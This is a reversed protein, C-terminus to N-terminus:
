RYVFGVGKNLYELYKEKDFSYLYPAKHAGGDLQKEHRIFIGLKLMKKQFNGRDLEKQLISEYLKQLDKMTFKDPLLSILVPLYNIQIRIHDLAKRVIEEHDFILEPLDNIPKWECSDSIIDPKPHCKKIDVLSLYGTSIFRQKFWQALSTNMNIIKLGQNLEDRNRRNKNGFTHFQDLFGIDLGTRSKLIRVAATDMDEDLQIFGGPLSWNDTGKWKLVLVHLEEFDYGIIV